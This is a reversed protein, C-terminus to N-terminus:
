PGEEGLGLQVYVTKLSLVLFSLLKSVDISYQRDFDKANGVEFGSDDVFSDVIIGELGRESTDSAPM